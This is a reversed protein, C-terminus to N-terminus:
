STSRSEAKKSMMWWSGIRDWTFSIASGHSTPAPRSGPRCSGSGTSRTSRSRGRCSARSRARRPVTASKACRKVARAVEVRGVTPPRERRDVEDGGVVAEREGVEDGVVVLVVLRVALVVAVARVVVARPVAAGLARGVVGLDDRQALPLLAVEQRRQEEGLADRHQEAAVLEAARLLAVVVGPALVVLERPEVPLEVRRSLPQELERSRQDREAARVRRETATGEEGAGGGPARASGSM